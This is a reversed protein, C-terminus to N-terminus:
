PKADGAEADIPVKEKTVRNKQKKKEYYPGNKPNADREKQAAEYAGEEEEFIQRIRSRKELRTEPVGYANGTMSSLIVLREKTKGTVRSQRVDTNMEALASKKEGRKKRKTKTGESSAGTAGDEGADEAKQGEEQEEPTLPRFIVIHDALASQQKHGPFVLRGRVFRIESATKIVYEHYWSTNTRAPVIAVVTKGKACELTMKKAWVSMCSYDPIVFSCNYWEARLLAEKDAGMSQANVQGEFNFEPHLMMRLIAPTRTMQKLVVEFGRIRSREGNGSSVADSLESRALKEILSTREIEEM